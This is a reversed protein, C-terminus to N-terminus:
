VVANKNNRNLLNLILDLFFKILIFFIYILFKLPNQSLKLSGRWWPDFALLRFNKLSLQPAVHSCTEGLVDLDFNKLGFVKAEDMQPSNIFRNMIKEVLNRAGNQNNFDLRRWSEAMRQSFELVAAQHTQILTVAQENVDSNLIPIFKSDQSQFGITKGHDAASLLEYLANSRLHNNKFGQNLNFLYSFAQDNKYAKFGPTLGLYLGLLGSARRQNYLDLIKSVAFQCRGLWGTDILAYPMEDCLGEQKLYGFVNDRKTKLIGNLIKYFENDQVCRMILKKEHFTLKGSSTLRYKALLPKFDDQSLQLQNFFSQLTMEKKSWVKFILDFRWDSFATVSPLIFAQRSGYLYRCDLGLSYKENLMSVIRHMILGDRAMFYLRKIQRQSAQEIIWLVFFFFLPGSVNCGTNWITQLEEDSFSKGLRVSRSIGSLQLSKLRNGINFDRMLKEYRTLKITEILTKM